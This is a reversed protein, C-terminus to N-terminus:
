QFIDSISDFRARPSNVGFKSCSNLDILSVKCAKSQHVIVNVFEYLVLQRDPRKGGLVITVELLHFGFPQIDSSQLDDDLMVRAALNRGLRGQVRLREALPRAEEARLVARRLLGVNLELPALSPFVADRQVRVRDERRM